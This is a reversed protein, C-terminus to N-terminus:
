LTSQMVHRATIISLRYCHVVSEVQQHGRGALLPVECEGLDEFVDWVRFFRGFEEFAEVRATVSFRDFDISLRAIAGQLALPDVLVFFLIVKIALQVAVTDVRVIRHAQVEALDAPHAQQCGLLLDDQSLLDLAALAGGLPQSMAFIREVFARLKLAPTHLAVGGALM